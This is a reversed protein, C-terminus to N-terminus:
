WSTGCRGGWCGATATTSGAHLANRLRLELPDAGIREAPEDILLIALTVTKKFSM